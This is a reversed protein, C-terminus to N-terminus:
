YDSFIMKNRSPVFFVSNIQPHVNKKQIGFILIEQLNQFVENKEYIIHRCGFFCVWLYIYTYTSLSFFLTYIDIFIILYLYLYLYIFNTCPMTPSLSTGVVTSLM